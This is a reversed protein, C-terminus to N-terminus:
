FFKKGWKPLHGSIEAPQVNSKAIVGLPTNLVRRLKEENIDPVNKTEESVKMKNFVM